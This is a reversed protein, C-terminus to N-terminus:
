FSVAAATVGAYVFSFASVKYCELKQGGRLQM